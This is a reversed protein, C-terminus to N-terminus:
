TERKANLTELSRQEFRSNVGSVGARSAAVLHSSYAPRERDMACTDAALLRFPDVSPWPLVRLLRSCLNAFGAEALGVARHAFIRMARERQDRRQGIAYHWILVRSILLAPPRLTM